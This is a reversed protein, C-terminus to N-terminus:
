DTELDTVFNNDYYAIGQVKNKWAMLVIKIAYRTFMGAGELESVNIFSNSIEAINFQYKEQQEFSNVSNLALLIEEKRTRADSNKSMVNIIYEERTLLNIEEQYGDDTPSTRNVSSYPQSSTHQIVIFLDKDKPLNYDQNTILIRNAAIQLFDKIIDAIILIPERNM